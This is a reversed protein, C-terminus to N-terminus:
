VIVCSSGRRSKDQPEHSTQFVKAHIMAVYDEPLRLRICSGPPVERYSVYNSELQNEQMRFLLSSTGIDRLFAQFSENTQSTNGLECFKEYHEQYVLVFAKM